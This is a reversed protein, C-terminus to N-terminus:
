LPGTSPLTDGLNINISPPSVSVAAGSAPLGFNGSGCQESTLVHGGIGLIGMYVPLEGRVTIFVIWAIILSAAIASSHSM